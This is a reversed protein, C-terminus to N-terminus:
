RKQRYGYYWRSHTSGVNRVTHKAGAPIYVEEGLKPRITNGQFTLEIDGETLMVLEDTDHVFDKWEQGPLDTWIDCGYGREEWDRKLETPDITAGEPKSSLRQDIDKNKQSTKEARGIKLMNKKLFLLNSTWVGLPAM